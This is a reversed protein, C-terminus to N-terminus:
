PHCAHFNFIGDVTLAILCAGLVIIVVSFRRATTRWMDVRQEWLQRENPSM